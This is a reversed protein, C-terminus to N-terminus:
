NALKYLWYRQKEPQAVLLKFNYNQKNSLKDILAQSPKYLFVNSFHEPIYSTEPKTILQLSVKSDLLHSLSLIYPYFADSIVLPQSTHNVIQAVQLNMLPTSGQTRGSPAQSIIACSLVGASLLMVMVFQWFKRHWSKVSIFTIKTAFLYAIALQIGLYSPTLYRAIIARRGGWILDPLIQPAATTSIILFVFLWAKKPTKIYLFYISYLVLILCIYPSINKPNFRYNLDIFITSINYILYWIRTLFSANYSTIWTTLKSIKSWNVLIILVWPMFILISALSALIYATMIKSLRFGEIVLAYIGHAIAVFAFYPHTYLGFVVTAAYVIWSFKRKIRIAKLLAASSLLISVTWLSYPRAEQVNVVLQFPSVTILTIAIWGTLSSNFLELCLWYIAPYTLLSILASLTHTTVDSNNFCKVWYRLLIYYLPSHPAADFVVSKITDILTTEANPRQYYQLSNVTIIKGNFLHKILDQSTYGSTHLLSRVEDSTYAKQQAFDVFQFFLGLILLLLIFWRFSNSMTKWKQILKNEM